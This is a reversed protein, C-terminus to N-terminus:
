RQASFHIDAYWSRARGGGNDMDTMLALGDLSDIEEGFAALWDARVDRVHHQWQEQNQAGSNLAWMQVNDGAFPNSWRSGVPHQRSWVYNLAKTRWFALGGSRVVYVRAPYDDGPKTNEDAGAPAGSDTRWRWHLYPTRRLDIRREQYLASASDQTVAQLVSSGDLTVMRYDTNGAFSRLDWDQLALPAQAGLLLPVPILLLLSVAIAKAFTMM